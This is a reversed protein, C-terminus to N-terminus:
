NTSCRVKLGYTTPELGVAKVADLGENKASFQPNKAQQVSGEATLTEVTSFPQSHSIEAPRTCSKTCSFDSADDRTGTARMTQSEPTVLPLLELATTMDLLGVQSYRDMTLTVTSHRALQQALFFSKTNEYGLNEVQTFPKSFQSEVM